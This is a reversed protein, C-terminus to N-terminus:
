FVRISLNLGPLGHELTSCQSLRDTMAGNACSLVTAKFGRRKTRGVISGGPELPDARRRIIPHSSPPRTLGDRRIRHAGMRVHRTRARHQSSASAPRGVQRLRLAWGAFSRLQPAARSRWSVTGPRQGRAHEKKPITAQIKGDFVRGRTAQASTPCCAGTWVVTRSTTRDNPKKAPYTWNVQWCREQIAPLQRRGRQAHAKTGVPADGQGAPAGARAEWRCVRKREQTTSTPIRPNLQATRECGQRPETPPRPAHSRMSAISQWRARTKTPKQTRPIIRQWRTLGRDAVHTRFSVQPTKPAKREKDTPTVKKPRAEPPEPTRVHTCPYGRAAEKRLNPAPNSPPHPHAGKSGAQM